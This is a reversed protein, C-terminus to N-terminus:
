GGAAEDLRDLEAIREVDGRQRAAQEAAAAERVASPWVGFDGSWTVKDGEMETVRGVVAGGDDYVLGLDNFDGTVRERYEASMPHRRGEFLTAEWWRDIWVDVAVYTGRALARAVVRPERFSVWVFYFDRESPAAEDRKGLVLEVRVLGTSLSM